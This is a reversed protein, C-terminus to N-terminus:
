QSYWHEQGASAAASEIEAFEADTLRTAISKSRNSENTPVAPAAFPAAVPTKGNASTM